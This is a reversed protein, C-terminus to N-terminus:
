RTEDRQQILPTRSLAVALAAYTPCVKGSHHPKNPLGYGLSHCAKEFLGSELYRQWLLKSSLALNVHDVLNDIHAHIRASIPVPLTLLSM